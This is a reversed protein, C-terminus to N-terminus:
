EQLEGTATGTAECDELGLSACDAGACTIASALDMEFSTDSTWTGTLDMSVTTVADYGYKSLDMTIPPQSCDFDRGDLACDLAEDGEGFTMSALDESVTVRETDTDSDGGTDGTDTPCDSEGMEVTITYLGSVPQFGCGALLLVLPLLSRSM